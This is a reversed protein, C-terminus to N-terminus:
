RYLKYALWSQKGHLIIQNDSVQESCGSSSSIRNDRSPKGPISTYCVAICAHTTNIVREELEWKERQLETIRALLERTEENVAGSSSFQNFM